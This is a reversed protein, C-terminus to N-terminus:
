AVKGKKLYMYKTDMVGAEMFEIYNKVRLEPVDWFFRDLFGNYLSTTNLNLIFNLLYDFPNNKITRIIAGIIRLWGAIKNLDNTGPMHRWEVTGYTALPSINLATYKVWDRTLSPIDLKNELLQPLVNRVVLTQSLPTCFINDERGEGCYAFLVKELFQYLLLLSALDGLSMDRFNTHVHISTRDSYNSLPSYDGDEELLTVLPNKKFFKSLGYYLTHYTAPGSIYEKGNNRLSGDTTIHFLSPVTTIDGTNEIELEIGYLLDPLPCPVAPRTLYIRKPVLLRYRFLDQFLLPTTM